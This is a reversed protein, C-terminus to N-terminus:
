LLFINPLIEMDKKVEVKTVPQEAKKFIFKKHSNGAAHLLMACLLLILLFFFTVSIKM